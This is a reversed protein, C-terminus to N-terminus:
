STLSQVCGEFCYQSATRLSSLSKLIIAVRNIADSRLVDRSERALSLVHYGKYWFSRIGENQKLFDLLVTFINVIRQTLNSGTWQEDEPNESWEFLVLTKLTYSSIFEAPETDSFLSIVNEHGNSNIEEDNNIFERVNQDVSKRKDFTDKPQCLHCTGLFLGAHLHGHQDFKRTIDRLVKLVRLCVSPGGDPGFHDRFLSQELCSQSIRLLCDSQETISILFGLGEERRKKEEKFLNSLSFTREKYGNIAFYYPLTHLLCSVVSGAQSDLDVEMTSSHSNIKVALVLDVAINIGKYLKGGTWKLHLTYAPGHRRTRDSLVQLDFAEFGRVLKSHLAGFFPRKIKERWDFSCLSPNVKLFKEFASESPIVTVVSHALEEFRIDEPHSFNDM